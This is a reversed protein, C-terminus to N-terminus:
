SGTRVTVPIQIPINVTPVVFALLATESGAKPALNYLPSAGMVFEPEGEYAAEVAITGVQAGTPCESLAFDAPSCKKMAGPNGFIGEPMQVELERPVEPGAPDALTFRTRIDPHAGAESTSLSAEFSSIAESAGAQPAAAMAAVIGAALIALLRRKVM